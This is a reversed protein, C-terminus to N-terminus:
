RGLFWGVALFAIGFFFCLLIDAVSNGKMKDHYYRKDRTKKSLLMKLLYYIGLLTLVGAVFFFLSAAIEFM